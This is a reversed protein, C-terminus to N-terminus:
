HFQGMPVRSFGPLLWNEPFWHSKVSDFELWELRVVLLCGFRVNLVRLPLEMVWWFRLFNVVRGESEPEEFVLQNKIAHGM